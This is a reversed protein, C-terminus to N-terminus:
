NKKMYYWFGQRRLIVDCQQSGSRSYINSTNSYGVSYIKDTGAHYQYGIIGGPSLNCVSLKVANGTTLDVEFHEQMYTGPVSSINTTDAIVGLVYLKNGAVTHLGQSFTEGVIGPSLVATAHSVPDYSSVILANQHYVIKNNWAAAQGQNIFSPTAAVALDASWTNSVTNYKYMKKNYVFTSTFTSAGNLLYIDTGIVVTLQYCNTVPISAITTWTNSILNYKASTSYIVFGTGVVYQWGGMVYIDNGVLVVGCGGRIGLPSINPLKSWKQATIDYDYLYADGGYYIFHNNYTVCDSGAPDAPTVATSSLPFGTNWSGAYNTTVPVLVTDWNDMQKLVSFGAAKISATDATQSIIISKSPLGLYKWTTGDAGEFNGSNYRISGAQNNTSNGIRVAGNVDLTQVPTTTNIGTNQSRAHLFLFICFALSCTSKM